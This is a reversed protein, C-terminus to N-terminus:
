GLYARKLNKNPQWYKQIAKGFGSWGLIWGVMFLYKILNRTLNWNLGITPNFTMSSLTFNIPM